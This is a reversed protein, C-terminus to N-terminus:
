HLLQLTKLEETERMRASVNTANLYAATQGVNSHRLLLRMRENSAGQLQIAQAAGRKFSHMWTGKPMVKRIREMLSEFERTNGGMVTNHHQVTRWFSVAIATLPGPPLYIPPRAVLVGKEKAFLEAGVKIPSEGACHIERWDSKNLFRLDPVRSRTMYSMAALAAAHQDGAKVLKNVGTIVDSPPLPPAQRPRVAASLRRLAKKAGLVRVTAVGRIGRRKCERLIKCMYGVVSRPAATRLRRHAFQLLHVEKSLHPATACGRLFDSWVRQVEGQTTPATAHLHLEDWPIREHMARGLAKGDRISFFNHDVLNRPGGKARPLRSAFRTTPSPPPSLNPPPCVGWRLPAPEEEAQHLGVHLSDPRLAAKNNKNQRLAAKKNNEKPRLAAKNNPRLAASNNVKKDKDKILRSAASNNKDKNNNNNNNNNKNKNKIKIKNKRLRLSAASTKQGLHM